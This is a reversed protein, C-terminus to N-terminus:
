RSDDAGVVNDIFTRTPTGGEATDSAFIGGSPPVGASTAVSGRGVGVIRHRRRLAGPFVRRPSHFFSSDSEAAGHGFM